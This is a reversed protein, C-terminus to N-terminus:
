ISRDRKYEYSIDELIKRQRTQIDAQLALVFLIFALLTFLLSVNILSQYPTTTHKILWHVLVFLGSVSGMILSGVGIGGFFALPRYDRVTRIIITISRITYSVVNDVIRSDGDRQGKVRCPVERVHMGKEILDILSEQTYTYTSFVNLRLAAERNYARFGCQTDTLRVGTLASILRSFLKNGVKKIWPMTPELERDMFRSCVTVDAEGDLIPRLLKPIDRPDFQMDADINVVYDAGLILAEEIGKKFAVGLGRNQPLRKVSDAGSNLAKESTRDTSGDDVVLVKVSDICDRPIQKVVEGITREENYAPIVVVLTKAM